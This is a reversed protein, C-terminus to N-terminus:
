RVSLTSDRGPAGVAGPPGLGGSRDAEVGPRCHPAVLEHRVSTADQVHGPEAVRDTLGAFLGVFTDIADMEGVAPVSAVDCERSRLFLCMGASAGTTPM